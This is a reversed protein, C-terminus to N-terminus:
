TSPITGSVPAMSSTQDTADEDKHAVEEEAEEEEGEGEQEGEEEEEEGAVEDGEEGEEQQEARVNEEAPSAEAGAADDDDDATAAAAPTDPISEPACVPSTTPPKSSRSASSARRRSMVSLGLMALLGAMLTALVAVPNEAAADLTPAAADPLFPRAKDALLRSASLISPFMANRKQAAMDRQKQRQEAAANAEWAEFKPRWTTEALRLAAAIDDGVVFNDLWIGGDVTWIEIALGTMPAMRSPETGEVEFYAPNPIKRPKWEGSYDPNDIKPPSWKGKYAPNAILPKEWKGCGPAKQCDPNAMMAPEWEGDEEDDWDQPKSSSPDPIFKEADELWGEPMEAEEDVIKRPADEDWNDPKVADPDPIKAETVWDDPQEDEPDDMEIEPVIPPRLDELLNGSSALGTDVYVDFTNDTKVHLTYVHFGGDDKMEPAEHFHKEEWEKTNPNEHQVIFHVKNTNRFCKDPGFMVSYPSENNLTTMDAGEPGRLMKVYAGGCTSGGRVQVEYQLVLDKGANDLPKPLPAGVAYHQHSQSLLLGYDGAFRGGELSCPEVRVRSEQRDYKPDQDQSLVWEGTRLADEGQFTSAFLFSSTDPRRPFDDSDAM